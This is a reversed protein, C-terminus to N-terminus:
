SGSRGHARGGRLDEGTYAKQITWNSVVRACNRQRKGTEPEAPASWSYEWSTVRMRRARQTLSHSLPPHIAPQRLLDEGSPQAAPVLAHGAPLPVLVQGQGDAPWGDLGDKSGSEDRFLVAQGPSDPCSSEPEPQGLLFQGSPHLHVDPGNPVGFEPYM